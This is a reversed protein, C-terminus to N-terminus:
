KIIASATKISFGQKVLQPYQEALLAALEVSWTHGIMVAGGTKKAKELGSTISRIMAEKNPENDIFVDRQGTKIGLRKALIPVATEATTRSDLFYIGREACFSLITEMTEANETIKSGQHNNIGAVPGIEDLNRKLISRIQESTMGSYIAGPGPNQGGLAEMPQHLFVEKGAARIRRAAEASYPLGPLVAITLPGPIRLFPELERLNNGADDIIFSLTGRTEAPREPTAAPVTQRRPAPQQVPVSAAPKPVIKEVVDPQSVSTSSVPEVPLPKQPVYESVPLPLEIDVPPERPPAKLASHVKIVALSISAAFIALAGALMFARMADSFGQKSRRLIQFKKKRVRRVPKKRLNRKPQVIDPKKM